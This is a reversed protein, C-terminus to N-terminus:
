ACLSVAKLTNLQQVITGKMSEANAMIAEVCKAKENWYENIDHPHIEAARM